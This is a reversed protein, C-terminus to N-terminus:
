EWNFSPAIEFDLLKDLYSKELLFYIAFVPQISISVKYLEKSGYNEYFPDLNLSEDFNIEM